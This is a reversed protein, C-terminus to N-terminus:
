IFVYRCFAPVAASVAPNLAEGLSYREKESKQPCMAYVAAKGDRGPFQWSKQLSGSLYCVRCGEKAALVCTTKRFGRDDHVTKREQACHIIFKLLDGAM